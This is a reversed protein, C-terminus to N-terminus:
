PRAVLFGMLAVLMTLFYCVIQIAGALLETPLAPCMVVERLRALARNLHQDLRLTLAGGSFFGLM